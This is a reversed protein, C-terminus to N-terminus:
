RSGAPGRFLLIPSKADPRLKIVALSELIREKIDELGYHDEDLM